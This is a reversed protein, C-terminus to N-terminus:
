PEPPPVILADSCASRAALQMVSFALVRAALVIAAAVSDDVDLAVLVIVEAVEVVIVEAVTVVDVVVALVVVVDDAVAVVDEAVVVVAVKVAVVAVEVVEPVVVVKVAVVAVVTVEKVVAVAVTVDVVAVAVVAVGVAKGGLVVETVTASCSDVVPSANIVAGPLTNSVVKGRDEDATVHLLNAICRVHASEEPTSSLVVTDVASLSAPHRANQADTLSVCHQRTCLFVPFQLANAFAPNDSTGCCATRAALQTGFLKSGTRGTMSVVALEVVSSAFFLGTHWSRVTSGKTDFLAHVSLSPSPHM